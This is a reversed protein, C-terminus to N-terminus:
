IKGFYKRTFWEITLLSIILALIWKWDILNQQIEESKQITFFQKNTNLENIFTDLKDLYILKGNTNLALKELKNKNANTFQAEVDYDTVIFKGYNKVTQNEVSIVFSYEGSKLDEIVVSFSNNQLSFPRKQIEKTETNTYSFWINARSDFQYNEDVYFASIVISENTAYMSKSTIELRNRKKNSALFQVLSGMFDDFDQFNNQNLFSAARWKWIGEGFLLAKKQNNDFLTALLPQQTQIGNIDQYLLTQQEKSFTVEGFKDKLPPFDEFRINKQVFTQFNENFRASYDETQNISKKSFGLQLSNIFNWDTESGTILLYNANEKNITQFITTFKNNPQYLIVLQYDNLQNKFNTLLSVDVKRQKNSEISKKLAGIDPHLFSTLILVKTQEDIVEVSFSKTNNKINKEDQIKSITATYYNIGEEDSTLNATVIKSKETTSFSVNERFLVKGKNSITFLQSTINENGEYYLFTEVPFQNKLYSYKNVNLQEIRVDKFLTTDGVIVPYIFQKSSIFEYDSGITQNGDTFLLIPAIKEKNLENVAEIANSINTQSDTFSLSDLTNIEKGFSFYRVDFKNHLEKNNEIEFISKSVREKQNFYNISSSNDVLVALVPKINTTKLSKIQPNILLLFLLFMSSARLSFLIYDLKRKSNNRYLYQYFAAFISIM